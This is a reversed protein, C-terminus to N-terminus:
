LIERGGEVSDEAFKFKHPHVVLNRNFRLVDGLVLMKCFVAECDVGALANETHWREIEKSMKDAALANLWHLVLNLGDTGKWM